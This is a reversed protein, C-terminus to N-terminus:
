GNLFGPWLKNAAAGTVQPVTVPDPCHQCIPLTYTGGRIDSRLEAYADSRWLESFTGDAGIRGLKGEDPRFTCNCCPLISGDVRVFVSLWPVLCRGPPPPRDSPDTDGVRDIERQWHDLNSEVGGEEALAKAETVVARLTDIDHEACLGSRRGKPVLAGKFYIAPVKARVAVRVAEPVEDLSQDSVVYNIRLQPGQGLRRKADQVAAIGDLVVDLKRGGALRSFTRPLAGHFSVKALGLGSLCLRDAQERFHTGTTAFNVRTGMGVAHRVVADWEPHLLPEGIGNLSLFRPRIAELHGIAEALPMHVEGDIRDARICTSCVHDCLTTHELHLHVPRAKPTNSALMADPLIRLARAAAM